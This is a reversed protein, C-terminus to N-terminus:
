LDMLNNIIVAFIIIFGPNNTLVFLAWMIIWVIEDERSVEQSM